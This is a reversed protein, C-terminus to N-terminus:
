KTFRNYDSTNIYRGEIESIKADYYTKKVLDSVVPIKNKVKSIKTNLVTATVLGCNRTNNYKGQLLCQQDLPLVTPECKLHQNNFDM